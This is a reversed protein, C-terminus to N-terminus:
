SSLWAVPWVHRSITMLELAGPLKASKAMNDRPLLPQLNRWNFCRKQDEPNTLDYAACPIIHDIHCDALTTAGPATIPLLRTLTSIVNEPTEGLLEITSACKSNGHLAQKVRSRLKCLIVFAPDEEIRRKKNERSWDRRHKKDVRDRYYIANCPKCVRQYGDCRRNSVSFSSLPLHLKCDNCERTAMECQCQFNASCYVPRPRYRTEDDSLRTSDLHRGVELRSGSIGPRGGFDLVFVRWNKM